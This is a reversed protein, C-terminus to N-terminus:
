PITLVSVVPLHDSAYSEAIVDHSRVSIKNNKVFAIHDITKRPNVVPITPACDTCSRTFVEDLLNIPESGPEANLDGALVVPLKQDKLLTNIAKVQMVRNEHNRQADLHTCAFLITRKGPLRIETLALVRPEAKPDDNHPLAHKETKAFPYKSLIAVGYDGGDHDIGKAFYVHMKLNSALLAAEDIKGSRGTRVDVEQLAVVDPKQAAIVRAIAELDISDPKSPPNAHHINYSM